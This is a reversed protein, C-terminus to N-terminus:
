SEAFSLSRSELRGSDDAFGAISLAGGSGAEVQANLFSPGGKPSGMFQSGLRSEGRYSEPKWVQLSENVPWNVAVMVVEPLSGLCV